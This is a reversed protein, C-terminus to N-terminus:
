FKDHKALEWYFLANKSNPCNSNLQKPNASQRIGDIEQGRNLLNSLTSNMNKREKKKGLFVSWFHPSPDLTRATKSKCFSKSPVQPFLGSAALM